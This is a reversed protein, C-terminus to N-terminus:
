ARKIIVVHRKVDMGRIQLPIVNEVMFTPPIDDLEKQPYKGKMALWRGETQLLHETTQLFFELSGFARSVICNFLQQPHFDESRTHIIDVTKLKLEAVAQTLFTTKKNNKDLLTWHGSYAIALPIGPLGAGSGVDLFREGVLFKQILLTDILHLFTKDSDSLIHTLNFFKNWKKLLILYNALKHYVEPLFHFGNKELNEQLFFEFKQTM